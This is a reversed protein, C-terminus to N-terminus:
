FSYFKEFTSMREKLGQPLAYADAKQAQERMADCLMTLLCGLPRRAGRRIGVVDVDAGKEIMKM